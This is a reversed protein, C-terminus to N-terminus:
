RVKKPQNKKETKTPEDQVLDKVGMAENMATVAQLMFNGTTGGTQDIWKYVSMLNFDVIQEKELVVFSAAHFTFVMLWEIDDIAEIKATDNLKNLLGFHALTKRYAYTGYFFRREVGGINFSLYGEM